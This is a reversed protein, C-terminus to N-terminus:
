FEWGLRVGGSIGRRVGVHGQLGAEINFHRDETSRYIIGIEGIGTGGKLDPVDFPQGLIYGKSKTDFEQEYSAGVYYSFRESKLKTYRSGIRFRQSVNKDYRVEEGTSLTLNKEDMKTWFYRALLDITATNNSILWEHGIGFHLAYYPTEHDFQLQVGDHSYFNHATFKNEITGARASAELRFGNDWRQRAMIGGGLYRLSGDGNLKSGFITGYNSSVDYSAFGGDAFLAFLFSANFDPSYTQRALGAIFTFTRYKNKAGKETWFVGADIGAFPDWGHNKDGSSPAHHTLPNGEKLAMDASKYSHDALWNGINALFALGAVRSEMLIKADEAPTPVYPKGVNPEVPNQSPIDPIAPVAPTDGSPSPVEPTPTPTPPDILPPTEPNPAPPGFPNPAPIPSPPAPIPSPPAPAPTPPAPIPDPGPVVPTLPPDFIPEPPPPTPQPALRAVLQKNTDGPYGDTDIIFDYMTVFGKQMRFTKNYPVGTIVGNGNTDILYFKDGQYLQDNGKFPTLSVVAGQIDVKNTSDIYMLASDLKNVTTAALNFQMKGHLEAKDLRMKIGGNNILLKGGPNLNLTHHEAFLKMGPGLDTTSGTSLNIENPVFNVGNTLQGTVISNSGGWIFTGPGIVNM